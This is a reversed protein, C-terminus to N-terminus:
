KLHFKIEDGNGKEFGKWIRRVQEGVPPRNKKLVTVYVCLYVYLHLRSIYESKGESHINKRGKLVVVMKIFYAFRAEKISKPPPVRSVIKCSVGHFHHM